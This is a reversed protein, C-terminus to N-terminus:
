QAPGLPQHALVKNEIRFVQWRDESLRCLDPSRNAFIIVHPSNFLVMDSEYKPSFFCGNKIEEIAGMDITGMYDRPIDIILIEPFVKHKKHYMMLGYKIDKGKGCLILADRKACMYKTFTSKGTSGEEDYVWNITRDDPEASLMSAIETQWPYFKEEDLVKLKKPFKISSFLRGNVKRKKEDSCYKISAERDDTKEWHITRNAFMNKPRVKKTFNIVGQLHDLGTKPCVEEQFVHNKSSDACVSLINKIDDEGYHFLTFCWWCAPSVQRTNGLIEGSSISSNDCM